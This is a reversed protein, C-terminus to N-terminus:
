GVQFSNKSSGTDLVGVGLGSAGGYVPVASPVSQGQFLEIETTEFYLNNLTSHPKFEPPLASLPVTWTLTSGDIKPLDIKTLRVSGDAALNDRVASQPTVGDPNPASYYTVGLWQKGDASVQGLMRYAVMTGAPPTPPASLVTKVTFGVVTTVTKKKKKVSTTTIVTQPAWSVSLVDAYSQSGAPTANDGAAPGATTERQGNLFNADGPIDTVQPTPATAPSDAFAAPMALAGLATAAVLLPRVRM